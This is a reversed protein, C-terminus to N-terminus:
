RHGRMCCENMLVVHRQACPQPITRPQAFIQKMQKKVSKTHCRRGCGRLGASSWCGCRLHAGSVERYIGGAGIVPRHRLGKSRAHCGSHARDRRPQLAKYELFSPLLPARSALAHPTQSQFITKEQFLPMQNLPTRAPSRSTSRGMTKARERAKRSVAPPPVAAGPRREASRM